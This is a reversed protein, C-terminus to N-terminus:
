EGRELLNDRYSDYYYDDYNDREKEKYEEFEEKKMIYQGLLDEIMALAGEQTLTIHEEDYKDCDYKNYIPEYDTNTIEKIEDYLSLEMKM